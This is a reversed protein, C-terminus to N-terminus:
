PKGLIDIFFRTERELSDVRNAANRFGHGEDGYEQYQHPIKRSELLQVVEKTVEPPVVKDLLGQFLIIPATLKDMHFIPSRTRYRSTPQQSQERSYPEGILMDTYRSEFKHTIESLTILNGIGYYCAGGAFVDPYETLARLVAYGGASGGRIFVFDKDVEDEKILYDIADAIDLADVEGWRGLLRQRYARGYGTSGRHNIDLVAFGVSAFYQKLPQYAKDTRSTPGGHVMVILPPRTNEPASFLPNYPRYLYGYTKEGDRTDCSFAIPKCCHEYPKDSQRHGIHRFSNDNPDIELIGADHNDPSVVCQIKGETYNLHVISAESLVLEIEGPERINIRYLADGEHATAIAYVFQNKVEVWRCQGFVWHAQGFEAELHTLRSEKNDLNLYLNSWNDHDSDRAYVLSGDALYGLQSVACNPADVVVEKDSITAYEDKNQGNIILRCQGVRTQDWPMGPHDWEFWALKDGRPSVVPCAYFDSGAVIEYVTDTSRGQDIVVLSNRNERNEVVRETVAVLQSKGVITKIDAFGVCDDDESTIAVPASGSALSQRYLRGDAFNNFVIEDGQVCFCRGGYEHVRSRINFNKPTICKINSVDLENCQMLAVRGGEDPLSQLWFLSDRWRFPYSPSAPQRFIDVISVPSQWEGYPATTKKQMDAILSQDHNSCLSAQFVLFVM